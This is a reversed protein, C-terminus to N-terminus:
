IPSPSTSRSLERRICGRKVFHETATTSCSTFPISTPSTPANDNAVVIDPYGDGNLDDIAVGWPTRGGSYHARRTFTGDGNGFLITIYGENKQDQNSNAVVIDPKGDGNLDAVTLAIPYALVPYRVKVHFTGDGNGLCVYLDGVGGWQQVLLDPIGDGNVDAVALANPFPINM